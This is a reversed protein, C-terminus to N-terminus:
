LVGDARSPKRQLRRKPLPTAFPIEDDDEASPPALSVDIYGAPNPYILTYGEAELLAWASASVATIPDHGPKYYTRPEM